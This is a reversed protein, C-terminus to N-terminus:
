SPSRSYARVIDHTNLTGIPEGAEGLVLLQSLNLHSVKRSTDALPADLPETAESVLIVTLPARSSNAFV